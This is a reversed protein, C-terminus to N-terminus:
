KLENLEEYLQRQEAQQQQREEAELKAVMLGAVGFTQQLIEALFAVTRPPVDRYVKKTRGLKHDYYQGVAVLDLSRVRRVLQFGFAKDDSFRRPQWDQMLYVALIVEVVKRPEVSELRALHSWAVRHYRVYPVGAHVHQVHEQAKRVLALWYDDLKTWVPSVANKKIRERVTKLYPTLEHVSVAVQTPHGHRELNRKHRNCFHSRGASPRACSPTKCTM